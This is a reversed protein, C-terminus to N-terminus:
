GGKQWMLKLMKPDIKKKHPQKHGWNRENRVGILLFFSQFFFIDEFSETAGVM